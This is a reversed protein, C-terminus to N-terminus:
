KNDVEKISIVSSIRLLKEKTGKISTIEVLMWDEDADIIVNKGHKSNGYNIIDFDTEDERMKSFRGENSPKMRYGDGKKEYFDDHAYHLM